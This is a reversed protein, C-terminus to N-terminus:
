LPLTREMKAKEIGRRALNPPSITLFRFGLMVLSAKGDGKTFCLPNMTKDLVAISNSSKSIYVNNPSPTKPKSLM